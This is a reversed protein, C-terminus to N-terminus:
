RLKYVEPMALALTRDMENRVTSLGEDVGM